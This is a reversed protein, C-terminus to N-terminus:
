FPYIIKAKIFDSVLYALLKGVQEESGSVLSPAAEPLHLYIANAAAATTHIYQRAENASVGSPTEASSPFNQISDCDLEIGFPKDKIKFLANGIADEFTLKKRLFIDEFTSYHIQDKNLQDFIYQSNYNEHLGVISYNDLYGEHKAYSFGNGSHRGELSRYDAHPDLNVCNIKDSLAISCGKLLGYSNNHGGGIVIPTKGAKVILEIIESVADDIKSTLARLQDLKLSHYNSVSSFDFAGLLLIEKGRIFPTEQINVFKSLFAEWASAAGEKGCNARPGVDEPIGLLVYKAPCDQLGKDIYDSGILISEGIKKEGERNSCLRWIDENQFIQLKM